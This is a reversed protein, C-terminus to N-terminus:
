NKFFDNNINRIKKILFYIGFKLQHKLDQKQHALVDGSNPRNNASSIVNELFEQFALRSLFLIKLSIIGSIDHQHRGEEMDVSLVM